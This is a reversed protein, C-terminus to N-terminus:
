FKHQIRVGNAAQKEPSELVNNPVYGEEGRDNRVKWWKKSVDLLQLPVIFSM